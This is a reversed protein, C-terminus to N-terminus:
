CVFLLVFVFVSLSVYLCVCMDLCVRVCLSQLKKLFILYGTSGFNEFFLIFVLIYTIYSSTM